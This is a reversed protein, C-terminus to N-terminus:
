NPVQESNRINETKWNTKLHKYRSQFNLVLCLCNSCCMQFCNGALLYLANLVISGIHCEADMELPGFSPCLYTMNWPSLETQTHEKWSGARCWIFSLITEWHAIHLSVARAYFFFTLTCASIHIHVGDKLHFNGRYFMQMSLKKSWMCSSVARCRKALWSNSM